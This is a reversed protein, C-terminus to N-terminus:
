RIWSWWSPQTGIPQRSWQRWEAVSLKPWPSRSQQQSYSFSTLSWGLGLGLMTSPIGTTRALFM